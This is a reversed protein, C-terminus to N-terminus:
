AIGAGSGQRTGGLSRSIPDAQTPVTQRVGNGKVDVVEWGCRDPTFLDKLNVSAAAPCTTQEAPVVLCAKGEETDSCGSLATLIPILLPSRRM